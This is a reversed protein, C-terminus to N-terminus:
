EGGGAANSAATGGPLSSVDIKQDHAEQEKRAAVFAVRAREKYDKGFCEVMTDHAAKEPNGAGVWIYEPAVEFSKKWFWYSRKLRAVWNSGLAFRLMTVHLQSAAYQMSALQKRLEINEADLKRHLGKRKMMRLAQGM